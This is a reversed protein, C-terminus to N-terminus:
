RRSLLQDYTAEAVWRLAPEDPVSQELAIVIVFDGKVQVLWGVHLDKSIPAFTIFTDPQLNRMQANSHQLDSFQGNLLTPTISQGASLSAVTAAIRLPTVRLQGQGITESYTVTAPMPVAENKLEFPVPKDLNLSGLALLWSGLYSRDQSKTRPEQNKVLWQLMMGPQYLGQTTRNILPANPDTRLADWAADLKNADFTPASVMALVEGTRWNMVVAAGRTVTMPNTASIANFLRTQLESDLTLTVPSGMRRRHLLDDIRSYPGRLIADAFAEMGGVGYRQSYYGVAPAAVTKSYVRQFRPVNNTTAVLASAALEVGNRDVISGRQTALEADVRRPNDTRATLMDAQVVGWFGAAAAVAILLVTSVQMAHGAARATSQMVANKPTTIEDASIRILLGLAIYSVLLSSGGYSVFPLTVGTLPVMALNGGIIVFVQFSLAAAIGGALLLRYPTHARISVRWARLCLVAFAAILALAGLLGFEESAMVFPFDTHVAPVYDPRGQNIGQGFLGGNAVAILSQVVQFSSGQPDIFPNLWIDIRQAVRASLFYGIGGAVFLLGLLLAPVRMSGTALYLMFVFTILLLMAAGLDQQTVLLALAILWMAITPFLSQLNSIPSQIKTSKEEQSVNRLRWDKNELREAFYAALFAILLLRLVESPQFFAGAFSLWLRAGIGAPNVGFLLTAFLLMFAALLWTYKFRRLWRLQDRSSAVILLALTAILLSLMQRSLFNPAVRSIILLGFSTLLVVPPLLFPDRAPAVRNLWVHAIVGCLSLAAMALLVGTDNRQLWLSFAGVWGFALASLILALEISRNRRV